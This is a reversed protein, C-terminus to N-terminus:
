PRICDEWFLMPLNQLAKDGKRIGLETKTVKKKRKRHYFVMVLAFCHSEMVTMTLFLLVPLSLMPAAAPLECESRSVPALSLVSPIAYMKQLGYSVELSM